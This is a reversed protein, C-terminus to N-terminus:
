VVLLNLVVNEVSLWKGRDQVTYICDVGECGIKNLVMKINYEWVYMSCAGGM